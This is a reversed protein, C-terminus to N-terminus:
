GAGFCDMAGAIACGLVVGTSSGDVAVVIGGLSVSFTFSGDRGVRGARGATLRGRGAVVCTAEFSAGPTLAM